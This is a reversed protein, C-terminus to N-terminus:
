FRYAAILELIRPQLVGTPRLNMSGSGVTRATITNANAANHIAIRPTIRHGKPPAPVHLVPSSATAVAGSHLAARDDTAQGIIGVDPGQGAPALSVLVMLLASSVWGVGRSRRQLGPTPPLSKM